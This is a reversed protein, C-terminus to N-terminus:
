TPNTVARVPRISTVVRIGVAAGVVAACAVAIWVGYQGDKADTGTRLFHLLSLPWAIYVGLHVVLWLRQPLRLRILSTAIALVILDFAITGLGVWERQYGATFPVVVSLWDVDVFKDITTTIIHVALLPLGVLAVNRHVAQTAWRPWMRSAMARQTAAVGFALAITLLIFATIGTSRTLYWLPASSFPPRGAALAPIM